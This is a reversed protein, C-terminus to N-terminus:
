ADSIDGGAGKADQELREKVRQYVAEALHAVLAEFDADGQKPIEVRVTLQETKM